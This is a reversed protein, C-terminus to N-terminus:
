MHPSISRVGNGRRRARREALVRGVLRELELLDAVRFLARRKGLAVEPDPAVIDTWQPPVSCITSDDVQLLLRKGYRNYRVGV